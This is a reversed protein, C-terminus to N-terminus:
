LPPANMSEAPENEVSGRYEGGTNMGQIPIHIPQEYPQVFDPKESIRKIRELCFVQM